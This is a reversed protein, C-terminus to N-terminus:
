PGPAINFSTSTAQVPNTGFYNVSAQLAAGTQPGGSVMLGQQVGLPIDTFSAVGNTPSVSLTGSLTGLTISMHVSNTATTIVNNAYDVISVQVTPGLFPAVTQGLIDTTAFTHGASAWPQVTFALTYVKFEASTLSAAGPATFQLKYTGPASITLDNFVAQGPQYTGSNFDHIPQILTGGLVGGTGQTQILSVTVNTGAGVPTGSGNLIQVAPYCGDGCEDVTVAKFYDDHGTRSPDETFSLHNENVAVPKFPSLSGAKGGIPPPPPLTGLAAAWLPPPLLYRGATRFAASALDLLGGGSSSLDPLTGEPCNLDDRLGAAVLNVPELLEFPFGPAGVVPNHGIRLNAPYGGPFARDDLFVLCFGVVATKGPQLVHTNTSNIANYDYTPPFQDGTFNTLNPDGAKRSIVIETPVLFSGPVLEVLAHHNVTTIVTNNPNAPDFFGVGFDGDAPAGTVEGIGRLIALILNQVQTQKGAPTHRNLWDIFDFAIKRAAAPHCTDWFLKIAAAQLIAEARLLSVPRSTGPYINIIQQAIGNTGGLPFPTAGCSAFSEAPPPVTPETPAHDNCAALALTGCVAAAYALRRM